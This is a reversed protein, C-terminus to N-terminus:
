AAGDPDVAKLRIRSVPNMPAEPMEDDAIEWDLSKMARPNRGLRDELQRLEAHMQASAVTAKHEYRLAVAVDVYRAIVDEIHMRVWVKAQPTRWLKEWLIQHFDTAAEGFSWEPIPGDYGDLPLPLKASPLNRRIRTGEPKRPAPV